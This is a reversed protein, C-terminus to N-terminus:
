SSAKWITAHQPPRLGESLEKLQESTLGYLPPTKVGLMSLCLYLEGRHHIEHETLLRLAKWTTIPHGDPTLCKNKLDEPTLRAFIAMSEAHMREFFALVNEHGEALERGCGSYRSPKNQVNEGFVYRETCAIHRVLDGPTFKGPAYSWEVKDPPIARAVRMTREHIKGFYDLFSEINTIEM